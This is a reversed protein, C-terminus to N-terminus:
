IVIIFIENERIGNQGLRLVWVTNMPVDVNLPVGDFFLNM